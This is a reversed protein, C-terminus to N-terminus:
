RSAPAQGRACIWGKGREENLAVDVFGADTLADRHQEVTLHTGGLLRM